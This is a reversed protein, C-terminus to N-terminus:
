RVLRSPPPLDPKGLFLVLLEHTVEKVESVPLTEMISAGEGSVWVLLCPDYSTIFEMLCIEEYWQRGTQFFVFCHVNLIRRRLRFKHGVTRQSPGNCRAILRFM